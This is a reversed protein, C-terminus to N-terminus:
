LPKETKNQNTKADPGLRFMGSAGFQLLVLSLGAVDWVSGKKQGKGTWWSGVSAPADDNGEFTRSHFVTKKGERHALMLGGRTWLRVRLLTASAVEAVSLSGHASYWIFWKVVKNPCVNEATFASLDNSVDGAANVHDIEYSPSFPSFLIFLGLDCPEGM